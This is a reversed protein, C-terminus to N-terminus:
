ESVRVGTRNLAMSWSQTNKIKEIRTLAMANSLQCSLIVDTMKFKLLHGLGGTTILSYAASSVSSRLADRKPM